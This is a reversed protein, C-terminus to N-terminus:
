AKKAHMAVGSLLRFSFMFLPLVLVLVALAPNNRMMGTDVAPMFVYTLFVVETLLLLLKDALHNLPYRIATTVYLLDFLAFGIVLALFGLTVSPLMGFSSSSGQAAEAASLDVNAQLAMFWAVGFYTIALTGALLTRAVTGTYSLSALVGHLTPHHNKKNKKKTEKITINKM